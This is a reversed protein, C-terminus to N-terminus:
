IGIGRKVEMAQTAIHGGVSVIRRGSGHGLRGPATRLKAYEPDDLKRAVAPWHEPNFLDIGEETLWKLVVINPVSAVQRIDGSPSYGKSGTDADHRKAANSDLIGQCDQFSEVILVDDDLADHMMAEMIGNGAGNDLLVRKSM